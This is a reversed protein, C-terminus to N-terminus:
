LSFHTTTSLCAAFFLTALPTLLRASLFTLAQEMVSWIVTSFEIWNLGLETSKDACRAVVFVDVLGNANMLTIPISLFEGSDAHGSPKV